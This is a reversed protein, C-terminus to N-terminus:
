KIIYFFSIKYHIIIYFKNVHDYILMRSLLDLAEESCLHKNELSIFKSWPKKSHREM